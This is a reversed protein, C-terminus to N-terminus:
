QIQTEKVWETDRNPKSTDSPRGSGKGERGWVPYVISDAYKM